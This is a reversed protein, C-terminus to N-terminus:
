SSYYFIFALTQGIVGSIIGVIVEKTTHAKLYIRSAGVLGLILFTLLILSFLNKSSVKGILACFAFLNAAATTHISVKLFNNLFFSIIISITAGLLVTAILYDQIYILSVVEKPKFMLFSMLYFLLFLMYPLIRQKRVSIDLDDVIQLKKLVLVMISPFICTMFLLLGISLNWIKTPVNIYLYPFSFVIVFFSYLPMLIPHFIISFFRALQPTM